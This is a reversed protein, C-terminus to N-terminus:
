VLELNRIDRTREEPTLYRLGLINFVSEETPTDLKQKDQTYLGYENLRLNLEKARQRMLINFQQSGTFYLLATGWSEPNILLIDIRRVYGDKRLRFLGLYKSKGEPTFDAVLLDHQKLIGVIYELSIGKTNKILIDIDGSDPEGRRYSGTVILDLTPFLQHFKANVLDIEGRPIRTALHERYYISLRASEPINAKYYLQALNRFGQNYLDIARVPGIGYLSMFLDLVQKREVNKSKLDELRQSTGTKLYEDIDAIISDGIGRPIKVKADKGSIIEEPYIGIKQAAELFVKARYQDGELTYLKGIESLHEALKSNDLEM